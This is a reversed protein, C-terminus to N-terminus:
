EDGIVMDQVSAVLWGGGRQVWSVCVRRNRNALLDGDTSLVKWAAKYSLIAAKENLRILEVDHIKYDPGVRQRKLSELYDAKTYRHNMSFGVWEETLIKGLGDADQRVCRDFRAKELTLLTHKLIEDDKSPDAKGERPAPSALAAPKDSQAAATRSSLVTVGTVIFGLVLVVAVVPKLKSMMIAKLVRETLAAVKGSVVETAAVQGSAFFSAASITSSVVSDRVGASAVNQALVAALVGGSLAFGRASLRKALLVRARALRSGVTGEPLGIHRAAEKRTKGELDCLVIVVRYIDPLRSMEHDLLPRLDNWLDQAVAAPEPMETVQRERAKRKAVTARAKLATQHAVGYLWNALVEPSAISAARRVLVLFTAQFADEADHYNSLVRRCVGWVMPGHRRVLAALAAEDRRSTYDELLQGDTLGAGDRLLMARRLHQIVGNLQGTAM